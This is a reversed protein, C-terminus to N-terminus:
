CSVKFAVPLMEISGGLSLSILVHSFVPLFHHCIISCSSLFDDLLSVKYLPSMQYKSPRSDLMASDTVVAIRRDM